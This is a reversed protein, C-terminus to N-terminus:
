ILITGNKAACWTRQQAWLDSLDVGNHRCDGSSGDMATVGEAALEAALREGVGYLFIMAGSGHVRVYKRATGLVTGVASKGDHEITSAGYFM